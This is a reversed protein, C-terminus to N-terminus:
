GNAAEELYDQILEFSSFDVIDEMPIILNFEEEILSILTVTALSDWKAHSSQSMIVIQDEDMDPFISKFCECLRSKIESM